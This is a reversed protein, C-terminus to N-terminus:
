EGEKEEPTHLPIPPPPVPQDSKEKDKVKEELILVDNKLLNLLEGLVCINACKNRGKADILQDLVNDAMNIKELTSLNELM